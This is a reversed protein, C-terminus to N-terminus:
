RIQPVLPTILVPAGHELMGLSPLWEPVGALGSLAAVAAAADAAARRASLGLLEQIQRALPKPPPYAILVVDDEPDLGIEQKLEGIATKMGGLSDVLGLEAAQAGTFVRGRGVADVAEPALSRGEAVREVFLDYVARVDARLRARTGPSLPRSSLLLDAHSGRTMTEVGIGLKELLGGLVPRLVLVGISGTYSAPQSVIRDAASAVYYGGSAAVDSFSAVVPKQARALRIAHWVQDSALASGGPSDIRLLIGRVEPDEAADGIAQAVTRAAFVRGGAPGSRDEGSTITGTGYVLAVSAVPDHGVSAPDVGAYVGAEVVPPDGLKEILEDFYLAGDILGHEQLEAPSIPAADVAESVAEFELGRAEAVGDLFQSDISDLLATTMERNAESMKDEAFTEVASKYRGIREYEIEVGLKEFLGGLFLYEGALGVLPTMVGPAAYVEDAASAVYYELHPGFRDVELWAVTRRGKAGLSVIADRIEQAKGWGIELDRVRFIVTGLRDDREAKTLESLLGILPKSEEGLFRAVLPARTAEVYAGELDIVLASGEAIRPGSARVFWVAAVVLVAVALWLVRRRKGGM